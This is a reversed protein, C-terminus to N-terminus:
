KGTTLGGFKVASKWQYNVPLAVAKGRTIGSVNEIPCHKYILYLWMEHKMSFNDSQLIQDPLFLCGCTGPSIEPLFAPSFHANAVQSLDPSIM